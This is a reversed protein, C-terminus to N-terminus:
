DLVWVQNNNKKLQSQLNTRYKQVQSEFHNGFESKGPIISHTIELNNPSIDTFPGDHIIGNYGPFLKLPYNKGFFKFLAIDHYSFKDHMSLGDEPSGATKMRSLLNNAKTSIDIQGNITNSDQQIKQYANNAKAINYDNLDNPM